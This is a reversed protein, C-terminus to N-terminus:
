SAIPNETSNESTQGSLLSESNKRTAIEQGDNRVIMATPYKIWLNESQTWTTPFNTIFGRVNSLEDLNAHRRPSAWFIEQFPMASTLRGKHQTAQDPNQWTPLISAPQGDDGYRSNRPIFSFADDYRKTNSDAQKRIAIWSMPNGPQAIAEVLHVAPRVNGRIGFLKEWIRSRLAHAFVRASQQSGPGNIDARQTEEDMVLLAIETDREGLLSRDNINASGLLVFRDDVIMLKSHVYIQETVYSKGIQEWNRLNLITLYKHWGDKVSSHRTDKVDEIVKRYDSAGQDKLERAKMLRQIGKILSHSGFAISQMTFYVQTAIAPDDLSGEPHVPLTMYIHFDPCIQDELIVQQLRRLIAPLIQNRPLCDLEGTDGHSLARLGDVAGNSIGNTGNRIFEGVPSLKASPRDIAGFDSVFFQQEIYIFRRAKAILQIMAVQIDQQTDTACVTDNCKKEFKCYARSASRLVQIQVNGAQPYSAPPKPLALRATKTCNWRLVFNRTLDSVAPGTVKFHNDQWPMRPQRAPDLTRYSPVNSSFGQNNAAIDAGSAKAYPVQFGGMIISNAEITAPSDQIPDRKKGSTFGLSALELDPMRDLPGSLRDPDVTGKKPLVGMPPIGPNYCNMAWRGDTDAKLSFKEDDFRGHALDIGGVFAITEDIIVQKQHHSFYSENVDVKSRSLCVHIRGTKREAIFRKNMSEFVLRTQDDYTQVPEHDDWPMIYVQIGRSGCEYLLDYLRMGHANTGSGATLQADWNIQWGVIYITQKATNCAEILAAFYDKGTTYACISNGCTPTSFVNTQSYDVWFPETHCALLPDGKEDVVQHVTRKPSPANSSSM